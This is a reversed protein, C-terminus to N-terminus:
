SAGVLQNQELKLRVTSLSFIISKGAASARAAIRLAPEASAKPRRSRTIEEREEAIGFEGCKEM